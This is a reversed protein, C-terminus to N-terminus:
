VKQACITMSLIINFTCLLALLYFLATGTTEVSARRLWLGFGETSDLLNLNVTLSPRSLDLHVTM